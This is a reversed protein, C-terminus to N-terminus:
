RLLPDQNQIKNRYEFNTNMIYVVLPYGFIKVFIHDSKQRTNQLNIEQIVVYMEWKYSQM